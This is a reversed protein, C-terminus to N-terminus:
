GVSVENTSVFGKGHAYFLINKRNLLIELWELTRFFRGKSLQKNLSKIREPNEHFIFNNECWEAFKQSMERYDRIFKRLIKQSPEDLQISKLVPNFYVNTLTEFDLLVDMLNTEPARNNDLYNNLRSLLTSAQDYSGDKFERLITIARYDEFADSKLYFYFVFASGILFSGMLGFLDKHSLGSNNRTQQPSSVSTTETGPIFVPGDTEVKVVDSTNTYKPKALFGHNNDRGQILIFRDSVSDESLHIKSLQSWSIPEQVAESFVPQAASLLTPLLINKIAPFLNV